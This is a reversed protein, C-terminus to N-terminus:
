TIMSFKYILNIRFSSNISRVKDTATDKLIVPPSSEINEFRIKSRVDPSKYVAIEPKKSSGVNGM